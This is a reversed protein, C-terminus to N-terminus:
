TSGVSICWSASVVCLYVVLDCKVSMPGFLGSKIRENSFSSVVLKVKIVKTCGPSSGVVERSRPSRESCDTVEAPECVRHIKTISLLKVWHTTKWSIYVLRPLTKQHSYISHVPIVVPKLYIEYQIQIQWIMSNLSCLYKKHENIPCKPLHDHFLSMNTFWSNYLNYNEQEVVM